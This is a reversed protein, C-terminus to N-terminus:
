ANVVARFIGKIVFFLFVFPLLPLSLAVGWLLLAVQGSEAFAKRPENSGAADAAGILLFFLGFFGMTIAVIAWM